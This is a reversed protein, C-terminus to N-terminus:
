KKKENVLTKAMEVQEDTIYVSGGSYRAGNYLSFLKSDTAEEDLDLETKVENPTLFARLKYGTKILKFMYKTYIFRIKDANETLDRWKVSGKISSLKKFINIDDLDFIFSKEDKRGKYRDLKIGFIRLIRRSIRSIGSAVKRVAYLFKDVVARRLSKPILKRISNVTIVALAATIMYTLQQLYRISESTQAPAQLWTSIELMVVTASMYASSYAVRTKDFRHKM